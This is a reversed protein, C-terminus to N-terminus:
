EDRQCRLFSKICRLVDGLGYTLSKENTPIEGTGDFHSVLRRNNESTLCSKNDNTNDSPFSHWLM